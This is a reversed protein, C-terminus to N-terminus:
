AADNDGKKLQTLVPLKRNQGHFLCIGRCDCFTCAGEVPEAAIQGDLVAESFYDYLELLCNKVADFSYLNKKMSIHTGGDDLETYRDLFTWGKLMRSKIMRAFLEEESMDTETLIDRSVKAAEIEFSSDQMSFYYTGAIKLGYLTEAICAYTPLQLQLGAAFRSPSMTHVSSKYDIVRLMEGRYEDLRDITGRLRVHPTIQQDAFSREAKEPIFSTCSEFDRLVTLSHRLGTEMRKMTMEFMHGDRPHLSGLAGFCKELFATIEAEPIDAYDKHYDNVAIEMVAHQITGIPAAELVTSEPARLKLGSQIFYSYACQFWREITSISGYIYGQPAFLKQATAPMLAAPRAKKPRLKLLKWPEPKGSFMAEVEFALQIERGEYDTDSCSFVLEKEASTMIWELQDTYASYREEASPYGTIKQLYIEDFLGSAGTYGPYNQGSCGVVYAAAKAPVPHCLDTVTCFDSVSRSASFSMLRVSDLIFRIDGDNKALPLTESLFSRIRMAAHLETRVKLYPSRQLVRFANKLASISDEASLLLSIEDRVSDMWERSASIMRSANQAERKFISSSLLPVIEDSFRLDDMTQRMFALVHDPCYRPFADAAAADLFSDTDKKLAFEALAAFINTVHLSLEQQVSSFPIRFRGFVEEVVPLQANMNTLIVNCPVGRICIDQAIAEIETRPTASHRLIKVPDNDQVLAPPFVQKLKQLIRYNWIDKEFYPWISVNEMDQLKKMGAEVSRASEKESLPMQLAMRIIEKLEASLVNDEPLDDASIGFLACERAFQLIESIFAPYIFMDRYNPFRGSEERLKMSLVFGLVSDNEPRRRFISSLQVAATGHNVTGAKLGTGLIMENQYNACVITKM